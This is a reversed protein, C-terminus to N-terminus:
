KWKLVMRSHLRSCYAITGIFVIGACIFIPLHLWRGNEINLLFALAHDLDVLVGFVGSWFGFVLSAWLKKNNRRNFARIIGNM